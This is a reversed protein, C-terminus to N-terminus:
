SRGTRRSTCSKPPPRSSGASAARDSSRSNADRLPFVAQGKPASRQSYAAPSTRSQLSSPISTSSHSESAPRPAAPPSAAMSASLSTTLRAGCSAPVEPSHSSSTAPSEPSATHTRQHMVRSFACASGRARRSASPFPRSDKTTVQGASADPRRGSMACSSSAAACIRPRADRERMSMATSLQKECSRATIPPSSTFRLGFLPISAPQSAPRERM